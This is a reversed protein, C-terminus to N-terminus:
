QWNSLMIGLYQINVVGDKNIDDSASGAKGWDAFVQAVNTNSYTVPMACSQSLVPSGGTCGSPTSSAVTRSQTGNACTSWDSYTFSTCTAQAPAGGTYEYAGIDYANGQPRATGLIDNTVASIAIGANIAPSGSNLNLNAPTASPNVFKPDGTIANTGAPTTNYFLNHDVTNPATGSVAIQEIGQGGVIINNEVTNGGSSFEPSMDGTSFDIGWGSSSTMYISNNYVMNNNCQTFVIGGVSNYIVNNAVLVNSPTTRWEVPNYGGYGSTPGYNLNSIATGSTINWITNGIATGNIGNEFGIGGGGDGGCNFITNYNATGNYDPINQGDFDIAWECNYVVNHSVNDYDAANMGHYWRSPYNFATNGTIVSDHSVANSFIGENPWENNGDMVSNTISNHGGEWEVSGTIYCNDLTIYQNDLKPVPWSGDGLKVNHYDSYQSIGANFDLFNSTLKLGKFTYYQITHGLCSITRSNGSSVTVSPTITRYGYSDKGVTPAVAAQITIVNGSTGTTTPTLAENYTGPEINVTDGSKVVNLSKQITQFPTSTSTGNNNDSGNTAVYYTTAASAHASILVFFIGSFFIGLFINVRSQM